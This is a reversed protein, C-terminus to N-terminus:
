MGIDKPSFLKGYPVQIGTGSRFFAGAFVTADDLAMFPLPWHVARHITPWIQKLLQAGRPGFHWRRVIETIASSLVTVYIDGIAFTTAQTNAIPRDDETMDIPHRKDSIPISHHAWLGDADSREFRGIWIRWNAPARNRNMVFTRERASIAIKTQDNNSFENTMVFMAIWRALLKQDKPYLTVNNGALMPVLIAKTQEQLRSMWGTNCIECVIRLRAAHPDGTRHRVTHEPERDKYLTVSQQGRSTIRRPVHDRLWDPWM